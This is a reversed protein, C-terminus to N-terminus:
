RDPVVVRGGAYDAAGRLYTAFAADAVIGSDWAQPHDPATSVALSLCWDTGQEYLEVLEAATYRGGLRRRLDEVIRQVVRDLVPRDDAPADRLRRLGQGWQFLASEM